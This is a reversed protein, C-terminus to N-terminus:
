KGVVLGARFRKAEITFLRVKACMPGFRVACKHCLLLTLKANLNYSIV